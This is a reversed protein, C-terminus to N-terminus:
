ASPIARSCCTMSCSELQVPRRDVAKLGRTCAVRPLDKRVEIYATTGLLLGTCYPSGGALREAHTSANDKGRAGLTSRSPLWQIDRLADAASANNCFG